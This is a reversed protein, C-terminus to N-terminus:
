NDKALLRRNRAYYNKLYYKIDAWKRRELVPYQKICETCKEKGPLLEKKLDFKFFTLVSQIEETTWPTKQHKKLTEKEKETEKHKRKIGQKKQQNNRIDYQAQKNM